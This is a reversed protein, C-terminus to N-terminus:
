AGAGGKRMEETLRRWKAKGDADHDYDEDIAAGSYKALTGGQSLTHLPTGEIEACGSEQHTDLGLSDIYRRTEMQQERTEGPLGFTFTGHVSVGLRKLEAVVTRAYELDLHKNVITDVVHQSGSEFGLKVGYCGNDRMVKWTEMRVTDARCMAAWPIGIRGMVESIAETHRTGLNFTDDDFYISKYGYKEVLGRVLGEVYDPSYQRVKRASEGDPDNGTMTAPWVCFICKYPCGRSTWIHAQPFTSGKMADYYRHAITGDFYPYPAANMEERTLLDHPIVGSEGGLVRVLGKEYEGKILAHVPHERLMKAGISSIPGTVIIKMQPYREAIRAILLSDHDWSPTASEIVIFDFRNADLFRFYSEYSEKLAVSDRLTIEAGAYKQAYTAAYGMFFPYPLYDGFRFNDPTSQWTSTFPWRSGARVGARRLGLREAPLLDLPRHSVWWPPNSFLVKM